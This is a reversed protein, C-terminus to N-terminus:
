VMIGLNQEIYKIVNVELCLSGFFIGCCVGREFCGILIWDWRLNLMNVARWKGIICDGDSFVGGVLFKLM